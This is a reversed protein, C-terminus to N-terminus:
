FLMDATLFLTIETIITSCFQGLLLTVSCCNKYTLRLQSPLHIWQRRNWSDKTSVYYCCCVWFLFISEILALCVAVIIYINKVCVMHWKCINIFTNNTQRNIDMVWHFLTNKGLHSMITFTYNLYQCHLAMQQPQKLKM